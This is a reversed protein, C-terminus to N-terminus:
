RRKYLYQAAVPDVDDDNDRDDGMAKDERGRGGTDHEANYLVKEIHKKAKEVNHQEGVVLVNPNSGTDRVNDRPINVSVKFSNQIHRLESGKPGILFRYTWEEIELEEHVVGEHTIPHHTYYVIDNIVEKAKEVKETSGAISLPYKKKGWSGKSDKTIGQPINIEVGLEAKLKMIIAGKQGIINPFCIPHVMVTAENFNDYALSMFGKEIMEKVAVEAMRVADAEGIITVMGDTTDIRDVGTKETIMKLTAGKPGVIRGIKEPPCPIQVSSSNTTAKVEVEPAQGAAGM